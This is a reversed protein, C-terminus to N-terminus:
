FLYGPSLSLKQRANANECETSCTFVLRRV